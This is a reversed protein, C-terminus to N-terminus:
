SASPKGLLSRFDSYGLSGLWHVINLAESQASRNTSALCIRLTEAVAERSGGIGWGQQQLRLLTDLTYTAREPDANALKQLFAFAFEVPHPSCGLALLADLQDLRWTLSFCDCRLWWAFSRLEQADGADVVSCETLRWLWLAALREVVVDDVAAANGFARGVAGLAREKVEISASSFFERLLGDEDDIDHLGRWYFALLHNALAARPQDTPGMWRWRPSALEERAARRYEGRLVRFCSDYPRSWVLYAEWAAMRLSGGEDQMPFVLPVLRCAWAEDIVVIWPFFHGYVSRVAASPDGVPDLHEELVRRVEPVTDLFPRTGSPEGETHRKVWMAYSVVVQMARGRVTNLALTTPDMNHGGYMSEYEPGPESDSTLVELLAWLRDRMTYPAGTNSSGFALELLNAISKRVSRWRGEDDHPGAPSSDHDREDIVAEFLSTLALWDVHGGKRLAQELGHLAWSIYIPRLSALQTATECIRLPDQEALVSLARALGERSPGFWDDRATFTTLRAFLDEDSLASMEEVTMPSEPGVWSRIEFSTSFEHEGYKSVLQRYRTRWVNPLDEAILTLRSIRWVALEEDTRERRETDEPGADIWELLQQRDDPVLVNFNSSLLSRYEPSPEYDLFADRNLLVRRLDQRAPPPPAALAHCALRHFLRADNSLLVDLLGSTSILNESRAQVAADRLATLVVQDIGETGSEDTDLRPRWVRYRDNEWGSDSGADDELMATLIGALLSLARESDLSLLTPVTENLVTEYAWSGFKARREDGLARQEDSAVARPQLLERALTFAADQQGEAALHVVLGALKTPLDFFIASQKRLWRVEREALRASQGGPMATAAEAFDVHVRENDTHISLILDAVEDPSSAAVRALYQSPLWAPVRIGEADEVPDPPDNFLGRKRLPALWEPSSLKQFFYEYNARSKSVETLARDVLEPTLSM